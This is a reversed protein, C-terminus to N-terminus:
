RRGHVHTQVSRGRQGPRAWSLEDGLAESKESINPIGAKLTGRRDRDYDRAFSRVKASNATSM